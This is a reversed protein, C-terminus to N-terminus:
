KKCVGGLYELSRKREGQIVEDVHNWDMKVSDIDLVGNKIETDLLGVKRLLDESRINRRGSTDLEMGLKKHFIISFAMGHFSNTLVYEANKILGLFESPSGYSVYNLGKKPPFCWNELYLVDLNKEQGLKIAYDVLKLPKMVTFVLIYPKRKKYKVVKDWESQELLFTPDIHCIPEKGNVLEKVMRCGSEERISLEQFSSIRKRYKEKSEEPMKSFGFSAAYTYKKEDPLFDLFYTEDSNTCADNFVQDSGSFVVDYNEGLKRLDKKKVEVSETLYDHRFQRLYKRWLFRKRGQLSMKINFKINKTKPFVKVYTNYIYDCMYNIIECDYGMKKITQQLAYSQLVAGYSMANHFTLIGIKKM